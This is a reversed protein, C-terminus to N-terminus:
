APTEQRTSNEPHESSQEDELWRVRDAAERRDMDLDIHQVATVALDEKGYTKTADHVSMISM